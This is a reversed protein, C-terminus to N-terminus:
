TSSRSESRTHRARGCRARALELVVTLEALLPRPDDRSWVANGPGLWARVPLGLGGSDGRSRWWARADPVPHVWRVGVRYRDTPPPEGGAADRYALVALDLGAAAALGLQWWPRANVELVKAVGDREDRKFEADFLGTFGIGAFLRELGSVADAVNELPITESLTSNGLGPPFMRLRRRALCARLFGARDVYGDVFVHADPPGPVLEQVVVELGEAALGPLLAAAEARDAPRLGKAGRRASFAQSDVPKLFSGRLEDDSLAALDAATRARVTRPAPVGLEAVADAFRAKDVLRELADRRPAVPVHAAAVVAPLVAMTTAWHDSCPLLVSREYPLANLWAALEGGGGGERPAGELPRHWRSRRVLPHAPQPVLVPVGARGLARLVALGAVDGGFVVAPIPPPDTLV